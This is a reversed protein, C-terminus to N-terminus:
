SRGFEINVSVLVVFFPPVPGYDVIPWELHSKEYRIGAARGHLTSVLETQSHM